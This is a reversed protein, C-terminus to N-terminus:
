EAVIAPRMRLEPSAAIAVMLDRVDTGSESFRSVLRDLFCSEGREPARGLAFRLWQRTACETVVPSEALAESMEVAGVYPGDVGTGDLNGSADVPLGNDLERFAGIADYHEFGFGFGDIRVHCGQCIPPETRAEFLQRNTMAPAGDEITPPSTDADAPPSPRPECLLREMVFLGRLPPSGNGGHAHSALFGGRTLLGAREGEPLTAPAWTADDAPGDSVGYLSALSANVFTERSTFLARLTGEGEFLTSEVFRDEEERLAERLAPSWSPYLDPARALHEDALIRDFDLWQRHFDLVADRAREDELMRRAQAEIQESTALEGAAAADFLARDPMSQWFLYSLRSATEWPTLAVMEEADGTGPSPLELRYLFHPTQLMAMLTLQVAAPFDIAARQADFFVQYRGVEDEALPRRYVRAGLDRILTVGCARQSADDSASAACPLLMALRDPTATLDRAYRFATEEWRSVGVDSPGLSRADNEFGGATSDPPLEPLTPRAGGVFLADPFLDELTRVYETRSLRRMPATGIVLTDASCSGEPGPGGVRGAGRPGVAGDILAGECAISLLATIAITARAGAGPTTTGLMPDHTGAVPCFPEGGAFFPPVV